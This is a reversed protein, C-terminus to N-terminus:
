SSTTWHVLKDSDKLGWPSCCLLGKQGKNDVSTQGLEHRNCQHDWSDWGRVGEEGEARLREWGWPSKWCTLQECWHGFYQLKLKLMLWKSYKPNIERLISQKSRRATWPVRQLKRCCWLEFANIRWHGARKVTWSECSDTVVLFVMAKVRRVKAPLTIDRSKLASDLNTM